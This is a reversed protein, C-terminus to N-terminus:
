KDFGQYKDSFQSSDTCCAPFTNISGIENKICFIEPLIVLGKQVM